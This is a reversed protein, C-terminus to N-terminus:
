REDDDLADSLPREGPLYPLAEEGLIQLTARRLHPPPEPNEGRTEAGPGIDQRANAAAGAEGREAESAALKLAYRAINIGDRVTYPEDEEHARQLFAAIHGLIPERAFPLNAQLIAREEDRDPFDILIQPQLRSHIYEPIDFTSADENM